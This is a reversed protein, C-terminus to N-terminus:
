VVVLEYFNEPRYYKNALERLAEPTISKYINVNSEFREKAFGNLILGKWRQIIQFSGDLDGLMNGLLYNKVLMLEEEDVLENRLIEMEKYIEQIAAECVEKGAETTILYAGAHQHNYMYSHIGYTYGKEERINSMLRSGFYGGFLTNLIIMPAFDPHSKLPFDSAIRIAGQVGNEDNVIRHKKDNSSIIAHVPPPIQTTNNWAQNGFIKEIATLEEPGFEGALFMMCNQSTYHNHVHEKLMTQTLADYDSDLLYKGYPHQLGFLFEDIKRNAIFDSKKLQVALRQKANQIFIEIEHQPFQADTILEYILELLKIFHKTLCSISLTTFDPDASIKVNAGFQEFIENIQFSTKQSTGSKLLAATTQAVAHQKEYWLGAKFVLEFQLVPQVHDSVFHLMIGNSFKKKSCDILNYEFEVPAYSYPEQTRNLM